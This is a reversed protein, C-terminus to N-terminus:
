GALLDGAPQTEDFAVDGVGAQNMPDEVIVFRGGDYIKRRLAVHVPGDVGGSGKDGRVDVTRELEQFGAPPEPGVRDIGEARLEPEQVNRCVLDKAAQSRVPSEGLM